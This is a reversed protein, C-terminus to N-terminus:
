RRLTILVGTLGSSRNRHCKSAFGLNYGEKTDQYIEDDRFDDFRAFSITSDSYEILRLGNAVYHDEGEVTSLKSSPFRVYTEESFSWVYSYNANWENDIALAYSYSRSTSQYGNDNDTKKYSHDNAKLIPGSWRGAFGLQSATPSSNCLGSTSFYQINVKTFETDPLLSSPFNGKNALVITQGGVSQHNWKLQLSAHMTTAGNYPGLKILTDGIKLRRSSSDSIWEIEYLSDLTPDLTTKLKYLAGIKEIITIKFSPQLFPEVPITILTSASGFFTTDRFPTVTAVFDGAAPFPISVSDASTVLHLNVGSIHWEFRTPKDSYGGARFTVNATTVRGRPTIMLFPSNGPAVVDLMLTDVFGLGLDAIVVYRGPKSYAYFMTDATHGKVVTGPEFTWNVWRDPKLGSHDQLSFRLPTGVFAETFHPSIKVYTRAPETPQKCSAVCILLSAFVFARRKM